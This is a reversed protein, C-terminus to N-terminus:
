CSEDQETGKKKNWTKIKENNKIYYCVDQEEDTKQEM